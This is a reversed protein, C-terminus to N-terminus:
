ESKPLSEIWRPLFESELYRTDFEGRQVQPDDLLAKQFNRSTDVGRIVTEDIIRRIKSMAQSRDAGHVILKGIM